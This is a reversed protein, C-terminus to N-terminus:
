AAEEDEDKAPQDFELILQQLNGYRVADNTRHLSTLGIHHLMEGDTLDVGVNAEVWRFLKGALPGELLVKGGGKMAVSLQLAM